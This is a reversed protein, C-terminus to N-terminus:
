EIDNKLDVVADETAQAADAAGAGVADIADAGADVVDGAGHEIAAGTDELADEGEHLHDHDGDIHEHDDVHEETAPDGNVPATADPQECGLTFLGLSLLLMLFGLKKM